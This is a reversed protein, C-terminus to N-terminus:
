GRVFRGKHDIGVGSPDYLAKIQYFIGSCISLMLIIELPGDGNVCFEVVFEVSQHHPM